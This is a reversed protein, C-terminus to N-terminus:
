ISKKAKQNKPGRLEEFGSEEKKALEISEVARRVQDVVKYGSQTLFSDIVGDDVFVTMREVLQHLDAGILPKIAGLINRIKCDTDLQEVIESGVLVELIVVGISWLDWELSWAKQLAYEPLSRNSYPMCVDPYSARSKGHFTVNQIGLHLLLKLDESMFINKPQITSLTAMLKKLELYSQLLQNIIKWGKCAM